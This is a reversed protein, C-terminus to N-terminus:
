EESFNTIMLVTDSLGSEDDILDAVYVKSAPLMMRDTNCNALMIPLDGHESMFDILIHILDTVMMFDM